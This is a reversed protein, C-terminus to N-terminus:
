YRNYLERDMLDHEIMAIIDRKYENFWECIYSLESIDEIDKLSIEVEKGKENIAIFIIDKYDDNRWDYSVGKIVYNEDVEISLNDCGELEYLYFVDIDFSHCIFEIYKGIEDIIKIKNRELGRMGLMDMENLINKKGYKKTLSELLVKDKRLM